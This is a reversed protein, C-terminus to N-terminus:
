GMGAILPRLGIKDTHLYNCCRWISLFRSADSFYARSQSLSRHFANQIIAGYTITLCRLFRARKTPQSPSSVDM